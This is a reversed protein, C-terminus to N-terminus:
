PAFRITNGGTNTDMTKALTRLASQTHVVAQQMQGVIEPGMAVVLPVALALVLLLHARISATKAM